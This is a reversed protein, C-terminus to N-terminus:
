IIQFIIYYFFEYDVSKGFLTLTFLDLFILHTPSTSRM